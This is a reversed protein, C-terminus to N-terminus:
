FGLAERIDDSRDRANMSAIRSLLKDKVPDSELLDLYSKIAKQKNDEWVIKGSALDLCEAVLKDTAANLKQIQEKTLEESYRFKEAFCARLLERNNEQTLYQEIAARTLRASADMASIVAEISVESELVFGRTENARVIKIREARLMNQIHPLLSELHALIDDDAIPEVSACIAQKEAKESGKSVLLIQGEDPKSTKPDYVSITSKESFLSM